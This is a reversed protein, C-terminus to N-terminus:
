VMFFTLPTGTYAPKFKQRQEDSYYLQDWLTRLEQRARRIFEEMREEKIITLRQLENELQLIFALTLVEAYSHSTQLCSIVKKVNDERLGYNEDKFIERTSEDVCLLDWIKMIKHLLEDVRFERESRFEM